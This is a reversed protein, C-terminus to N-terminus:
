QAMAMLMQAPSQHSASIAKRECEIFYARVEKGKATGSLMAINKGADITLHYDISDFKGGVGKQAVTVYDVGEVLDARKIQAKVWNSFDKGVGLYSHLERANVTQIPQGNIQGQQIKVLEM